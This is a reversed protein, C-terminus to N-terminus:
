KRIDPYNKCIIESPTILSSSDLNEKLLEFRSPVLSGERLISYIGLRSVCSSSYVTRYPNGSQTKRYGRLLLVSSLVSFLASEANDETLFPEAALKELSARLFRSVSSFNGSFDANEIDGDLVASRPSSPIEYGSKKILPQSLLNSLQIPFPPENTLVGIPNEYINLGQATSEIVASRKEDSIIFHLPSPPISKSFADNTINLDKLADLSESVTSFSSLIYPLLEFSALNLANKQFSHYKASERFALAAASLGKENLGDFYLPFSDEIKASGIFALHESLAPLHRLSLLYKRPTIVVKEGFSDSVDLTRGFYLGNCYLSIATCM